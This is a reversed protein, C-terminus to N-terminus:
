YQREEAGEGTGVIEVECVAGAEIVEM